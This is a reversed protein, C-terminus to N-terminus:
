SQSTLSFSSTWITVLQPIAFLQPFTENTTANVMLSNTFISSLAVAFVGGVLAPMAAQLINPEESEAGSGTAQTDSGGFL